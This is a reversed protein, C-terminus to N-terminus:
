AKSTGTRGYRDALRVVDDLHPTSAELVVCDTVAIMQHITGPTNHFSDGERFRVRRLRPANVAKQRGSATKRKGSETKQKATSAVRYDMTGSVLHVVEDKRKHYQISLAHGAKVYLVKGVYRDTAAWILEFGWPKPVFRVHARGARNM